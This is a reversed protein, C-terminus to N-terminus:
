HGLVRNAKSEILNLQARLQLYASHISIHKIVTMRKRTYRDTFLKEYEALREEVSAM